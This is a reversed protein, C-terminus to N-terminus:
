AIILIGHGLYWHLRRLIHLMKMNWKVRKNAMRLLIGSLSILLTLVLMVLGIHDHYNENEKSRRGIIWGRRGMTYLSTGFTAGFIITGSYIHIRIGNKWDPLMYRVGAVLLLGFLTWSFVM